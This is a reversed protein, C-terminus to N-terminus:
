KKSSLTLKSNAKYRGYVVILMSVILGFAEMIQAIELETIDSGLIRHALIGFLPPLALYTKSLYFPKTNDM